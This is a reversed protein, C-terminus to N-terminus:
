TDDYGWNKFYSFKLVVLWYLLLSIIDGQSVSWEVIGVFDHKRQHAKNTQLVCYAWSHQLHKNKLFPISSRIFFYLFWLNFMVATLYSIHFHKTHSHLEIYICGTLTYKQITNQTFCHSTLVHCLNPAEHCLSFFVHM